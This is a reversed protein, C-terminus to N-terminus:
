VAGKGCGGAALMLPTFQVVGGWVSGEHDVPAGLALLREVAALQGREAAAALPHLATRRKLTGLM